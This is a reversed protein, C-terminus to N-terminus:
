CRLAGVEELIPQLIVGAVTHSFLPFSFIARKTGYEFGGVFSGSAFCGLHRNWEVMKAIGWPSMRIRCSSGGDTSSPPSLSGWMRPRAIEEHRFTFKDRLTAQDSRCSLCNFTAYCRNNHGSNAAHWFRVVNGPLIYPWVEDRPSANRPLARRARV